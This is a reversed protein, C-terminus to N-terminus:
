ALQSGVGLLFLSSHSTSAVSFRLVRGVFRLWSQVKRVFYAESLCYLWHFSSQLSIELLFLGSPLASLVVTCERENWWISGIWKRRTSVTWVRVVSRRPESVAKGSSLLSSIGDATQLQRWRGNGARGQDDAAREPVHAFDGLLSQLNRAPWPFSEASLFDFGMCLGLSRDSFFSSSLTVQEDHEVEAAKFSSLRWFVLCANSCSTKVKIKNVYNIAHNFEVPQGAQQGQGSHPPSALPEQSPRAQHYSHHAATNTSQVQGVPQAQLM